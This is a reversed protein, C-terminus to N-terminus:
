RMVDVGKPYGKAFVLKEGGLKPFVKEPLIKWGGKGEFFLVSTDGMGIQDLRVINPKIWRTRKYVVGHYKGANNWTNARVCQEFARVANIKERGGLATQMEHFFRLGNQCECATPLLLSLALTLFQAANRIM